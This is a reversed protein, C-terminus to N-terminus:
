WAILTPSVDLVTYKLDYLHSNCVCAKKRCSLVFKWFLELIAIWSLTTYCTLIFCEISSPFLMLYLIIHMQNLKLFNVSIKFCAQKHILAINELRRCHVRAANSMSDHSLWWLSAFDCLFYNGSFHQQGHLCCLFIHKEKQSNYIKNMM